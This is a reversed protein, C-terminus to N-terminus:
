SLKQGPYAVIKGEGDQFQGVLLQFTVIITHIIDIGLFVLGIIPYGLAMLTFAAISLSLDFLGLGIRGLYFHQVGLIGFIGSLCVAATYSKDSKLRTDNDLILDDRM